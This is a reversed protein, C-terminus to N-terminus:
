KVDEPRPDASRDWEGFRALHDYDGIEAEKQIMRRATYGQGPELYASILEKLESLVQHTPNELLPAAVTKMAGLGVFVADQVHAPAFNKFAGEEAMAAELLLQKDFFTQEKQTPAHSAKYDFIRLQGDPTVDIRDAIGSLTFSPDSFQYTARAELVAPKSESQRASEQAIFWDAFRAVMAHWMRRSTSWPVDKELIADATQLLAEASLALEGKQEQRIFQELISHLVIGRNRADPEKVLPDLTRLRLIHKAYIAYPDRILRKIETVSLRDPRASIPPRPSPREAAPQRPADDLVSAWRRWKDGRNRMDSFTEPGDNEPLGNLLNSLRNLWRSPVTDANDGRKARTLWVEPAGIAQQFDHAALGIRREPLLLGAEKRMARNLWPDPKAAEPWSGENLGALILLDAGQVRAEMTGWIMIRPHPADRDRVEEQMLLHRLLTAFDTASLMGGADAEESLSAMVSQAKQGANQAWLESADESSSGACITEASSILRSVWGSLPLVGTKSPNLLHDTVWGVWKQVDDSEGTGAWNQVTEADPFPPGKRRLYLDLERTHLLHDGRGAGAHALPHKLLTLLKPGDLPGIFGDAIHLLFRGPPSLHLPTGASDDPLIGWQDLAATVQRTLARDPTILAATQGTEAAQRLRLAITLAELRITDAEVLTVDAFASRLDLLQPGEKLWSDTVPAPRLALSVARNRDHSPPSSITWREVEGPHTECAKLVTRFRFQPHDEFVLADQMENWVAEPLDFDFGPLIIAGQPLRAVAQMLLLTTGRSGTSGALIIPDRPPASNWHEITKQVLQRQYGEADLANEARDVFSGAIQMFALARQWHGSMDSVDLRSLVDPDVGEGQMEDFLAALSDTLDFVSARSEFSKHKEILSSVLQSLELRRRLSPIKQPLDLLAPDTVDSLLRIRPVFGSGRSEFISRIRRAMRKTNVILTVRGLAEPPHDQLRDTIGTVLERPFDIGPPLAFVRSGKAPEFM